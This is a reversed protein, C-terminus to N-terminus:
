AGVVAHVHRLHTRELDTADAVFRDAVVGVPGCASCEVLLAAGAATVAVRIESTM